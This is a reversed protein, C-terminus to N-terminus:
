YIIQFESEITIALAGDLVRFLETTISLVMPQTYKIYILNGTDKEVICEIKCDYYETDCKTIYDVLEQAKTLNVEEMVAIVGENEAPNKCYALNLEIYYKGDKETLKAIDVDDAKLKSSWDKGKVPFNAKILDGSAYEVPTDHDVLWSGMLTRGAFDWAPPYKSMEDDKRINEYNRIVKVAKKKVKNASENFIEVIEEKTDPTTDETTTPATTTPKTTTIPAETTAPATTTQETSPVTTDSQSVTPETTSLNNQTNLTNTYQLNSLSGIINGLIFLGIVLAIGSVALQLVSKEKTHKEM